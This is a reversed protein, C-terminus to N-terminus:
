FTLKRESEDSERESEKWILKMTNHEKNKKEKKSLVSLLDLIIEAGVLKLWIDCMPGPSPMCFWRRNSRGVEMSLGLSDRLWNSLIIWGSIAENFCNRWSFIPWLLPLYDCTLHRVKEFNMNKYNSKNKNWHTKLWGVMTTVNIVRNNNCLLLASFCLAHGAIQALNNLIEIVWDMQCHIM